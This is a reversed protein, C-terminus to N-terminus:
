EFIRKFEEITKEVESPEEPEGPVILQAPARPFVTKLYDIDFLEDSFAANEEFNIAQGIIKNITNLLCCNLLIHSL